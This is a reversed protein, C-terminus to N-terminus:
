ARKALTAALRARSDGASQVATLAAQGASSRTASLVLGFLLSSVGILLFIWDANQSIVVDKATGFLGKFTDTQFKALSKWWAVPDFFSGLGGGPSPNPDTPSPTVGPATWSGGLIAALYKQTEAPLDEKKGSWKDVRGPGWNYAALAHPYSGKYRDLLERMWKAAYKLAGIPEWPDVGPHWKPVIQAIGSAGSGENKALPDYKSETYIQRDFITPNVGYENAFKIAYARYDVAM